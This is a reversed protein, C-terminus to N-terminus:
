NRKGSTHSAGRWSSTVRSTSLPQEHAPAIGLRKSLLFSVDAMRLRELVLIGCKARCGTVIRTFLALDRQRHELWTVNPTDGITLDRVRAPDTNCVTAVRWCLVRGDLALSKTLGNYCLDTTSLAIKELRRFVRWLRRRRKM